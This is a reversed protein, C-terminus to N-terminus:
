GFVGCLWFVYLLLVFMNWYALDFSLLLFGLVPSFRIFFAGLLCCRAFLVIPLLCFGACGFVVFIGCCVPTCQWCFVGVVVV